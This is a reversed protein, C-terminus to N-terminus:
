AAYAGVGWVLAAGCLAVALRHRRALLAYTVVFAGTAANVALSILASEAVFAAGHEAALYAYAPGASIPLTAVMAGVFPGTREVVLSATVVVVASTLMKALLALWFPDM